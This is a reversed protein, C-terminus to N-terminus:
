RGDLRQAPWVSCPYPFKRCSLFEVALVLQVLVMIVLRTAITAVHKTVFTLSCKGSSHTTARLRFWSLKLQM